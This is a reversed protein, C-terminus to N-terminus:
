RLPITIFFKHVITVQPIQGKRTLEKEEYFENWNIVKSYTINRNLSSITLFIITENYVGQKLLLFYLPPFRLSSVDKMQFKPNPLSPVHISVFQAFSERWMKFSISREVIFLKPPFVWRRWKKKYYKGKWKEERRNMEKWLDYGFMALLKMVMSIIPHIEGFNVNSSM